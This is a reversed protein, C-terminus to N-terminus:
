SVVEYSILLDLLGASTAKAKISTNEEVYIQSNKDLVLLTTDPPIDINKVIYYDDTSDSWSVDVGITLSASTNSAIITNVKYVQGSSASNSLVASLSTSTTAGKTKGNITTVNVINPNAM